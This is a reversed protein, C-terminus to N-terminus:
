AGAAIYTVSAYFGSSQAATTAVFSVAGSTTVKLFLSGTSSQFYVETLPRYNSALVASLLNVSNAASAKTTVGSLQLVVMNGRRKVYINGASVYSSNVSLTGDAYSFYLTGNLNLRFYPNSSYPYVICAAAGTTSGATYKYAYMSTTVNGSTDVNNLLRGITNAEAIGNGSELFKIYKNCASSPITGKTLGTDIALHTHTVKINPAIFCEGGQNGALTLSAPSQVSDYDTFILQIGQDGSGDLFTIHPNASDYANSNSTVAQLVISGDGGIFCGTEENWIYKNSGVYVDDQLYVSSASTIGLQVDLTGDICTSGDWSVTLANSRANDATGNGIIVAYTDDPDSINYKGLAIQTQSAALTGVGLALSNTGITYNSDEAKSGVSRLSGAASGNLLNSPLIVDVAKNGDPILATGNVKITEIVNIDGGGAAATDWRYKDGTTVLSLSTGGSAAPKSEYTTDTFVANAPVNSQVTHGNVTASDPVYQQVRGNKYWYIPHLLSLVVRYPQSDEYVRGLYIYILGNDTSPLTQSLPASHLKALGDDQPVCVLYLPLRATLTATTDYGGCNFSYRLDCLYQRYLNGNPVNGDAAATTTSGYWFLEGFPDFTDTTLTKNTAVSNNVTNAPVLNGNPKTFCFQYRYLAATTKRSTYYERNQYNVDNADGTEQLGNTVYNIETYANYNTSGTGPINAYPLCTDFFSFDCNEVELIDVIITREYGATIPSYASYFRVGLAHGYGADFGAKKMRYVEHYYAPYYTSVTNMSSYSLIRDQDGSLMVEATMDYLDKGPIYTRIKYKIKWPVYFNDPKISGFFFTAGAWTNATGLVGTYTKSELLHKKDIYSKIKEWFYQLGSKDLYQKAM